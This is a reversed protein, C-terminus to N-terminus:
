ALWKWTDRRVMRGVAHPALGYWGGMEVYTFGYTAYARIARVKPAMESRHASWRADRARHVQLPSVGRRVNEAGTVQELHDPNVCSRNRCLHDIHMGAGIDGVLMEYVVRHAYRVAGGVTCRGYGHRAVYGTWEWCCPTPDIHNMVNRFQRNTFGPRAMPSPLNADGRATM